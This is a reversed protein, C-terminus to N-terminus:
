PSRRWVDLRFGGSPGPREAGDLHRWGLSRGLTSAIEDHVETGHLVHDDSTGLWHVAVLDARPAAVRDLTSLDTALRPRSVYYGVESLVILDYGPGATDTVDDPWRGVAVSVHPLWACRQRARAVATPAVDIADLRDCRLALRATLVGISCGPELARAYRPRPLARLVADYRSREYPSGAFDWPDPEARYRAEFAAASTPRHHAGTVM